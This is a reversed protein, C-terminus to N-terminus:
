RRMMFGAIFALLVLVEVNLILILEARPFSAPTVSQVATTFSHRQRPARVVTVVTALRSVPPPMYSRVVKSIAMSILQVLGIAGGVDAMWNLTGEVVGLWTVSGEAFEIHVHFDGDLRRALERTIEMAIESSERDLRAVLEASALQYRELAQNDLRGSFSFVWEHGRPDVDIEPM